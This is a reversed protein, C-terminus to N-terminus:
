FFSVFFTLLDPFDPLTKTEITEKRERKREKM